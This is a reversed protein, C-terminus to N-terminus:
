FGGDVRIVTKNIYSADESSLFYIVKAIEEAEAFRGLLIKKEEEKKFEDFLDKTMETNVWGSAVANVRINPALVNAFNRTLSIVGAKSADYDISEIYETDIGNTSAVNIISGKEMLKSGYKIVLFTGILNTNIVKNFEKSTKDNLTQDISIGANNIIVDLTKFKEKITDFMAIVDEEKSIDAKCLLVEINYKNELEKKLNNAKLDNSKYNVIINYNNSAFIKASSSGIGSSAGTILVTKKMFNRMEKEM